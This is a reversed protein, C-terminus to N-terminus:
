ILKASEGKKLNKKESNSHTRKKNETRTQLATGSFESSSFFFKFGFFSHTAMTAM